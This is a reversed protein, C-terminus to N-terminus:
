AGGRAAGAPSRAPMSGGGATPRRELAGPGHQAQNLLGAKAGDFLTRYGRCCIRLAHKGDRGRASWCVTLLTVLADRPWWGSRLRSRARWSWGQFM